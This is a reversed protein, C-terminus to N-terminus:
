AAAETGYAHLALTALTAREIAPHLPPPATVGVMRLNEARYMHTGRESVRYRISAHPQDHRNPRDIHVLGTDELRRMRAHTAETSTGLTTALDDRTIWHTDADITHLHDLADFQQKTLTM